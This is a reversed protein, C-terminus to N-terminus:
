STVLENQFIIRLISSLCDLASVPCPRVQREDKVCAGGIVKYSRADSPAFDLGMGAEEQVFTCVLKGFTPCSADSTSGSIDM